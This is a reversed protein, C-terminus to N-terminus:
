LRFFAHSSKPLNKNIQDNVFQLNNCYEKIQSNKIRKVSPCQIGM